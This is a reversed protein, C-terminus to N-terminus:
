GPVENWIWLLGDPCTTHWEICSRKGSCKPCPGDTWKTEVGSDVLSLEIWSDEWIVGCQRCTKNVTTYVRIV